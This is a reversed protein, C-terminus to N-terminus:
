LNNEMNTLLENGDKKNKLCLEEQKIWNEANIYSERIQQFNLNYQNILKRGEQWYWNQVSESIYGQQIYTNFQNILKQNEQQYWNNINQEQEKIQKCYENFQNKIKLTDQTYKIDVNYIEKNLNSSQQYLQM